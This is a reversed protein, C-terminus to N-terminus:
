TNTTPRIACQIQATLTSEEARRVRPLKVSLRMRNRWFSLTPYLNRLQLLSNQVLLIARQLQARLASKEVCWVQLLKASLRMRSQLNRQMQISREFCYLQSPACVCQRQCGLKLAHYRRVHVYLLL